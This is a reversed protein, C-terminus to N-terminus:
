EYHMTISEVNARFYGAYTNTYRILYLYYTKNGELKTTDFVFYFTTGNAIGQTKSSTTGSTDTCVPSSALTKSGSLGEGPGYANSFNPDVDLIDPCKTYEESSLYARSANYHANCIDGYTTVEVVLKTSRYLKSTSGITIPLKSYWNQTGEKADKASIITNDEVTVWRPDYNKTPTDCAYVTGWTCSTTAM